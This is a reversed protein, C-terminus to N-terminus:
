FDEFLIDTMVTGKLGIKEKPKGFRLGPTGEEVVFCSIEKPGQGPSTAAFVSYFQAISGHTVFGKKGNLLYSTGQKEATTKLFKAEMGAQPENLAFAALGNNEAIQTLYREKQSTNGGLLIPMSGIGQALILLSSSGCVKAIEEVVLCFSTADGSNGGYEEPLLISLLGQKGLAELLDKPFEGTADIKAARPQVMRQATKEAAVRIMQREKETDKMKSKKFSDPASRVYITVNFSYFNKTLSFTSLLLFM